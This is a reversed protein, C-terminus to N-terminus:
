LLSNVALPQISDYVRESRTVVRARKSSRFFPPKLFYITELKMREIVKMKEACYKQSNTSSTRLITAVQGLLECEVTISIEYNYIM